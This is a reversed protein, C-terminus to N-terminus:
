LLGSIVEGEYISLNVGNLIKQGSESIVATLDKVELVLKPHGNEGDSISGAPSEATITATLKFSPFQRHNRPLASVTFLKSNSTSQKFSILPPPPPTTSCYGFRHLLAM